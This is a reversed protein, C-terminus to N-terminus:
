GSADKTEAVWADVKQSLVDLPLAGNALVTDHFARIDFDDGLAMQARERMDLIARQGVYYTMIQGPWILLRDIARNIREPDDGIMTELYAYAQERDWRESHIGTEVVQVAALTLLSHLYGVEALGDGGYLGMEHALTEAYTAWGETYGPFPLYQRLLPLGMEMQLALQYHHGPITEHFVLRALGGPSVDAPNGISMNFVGPRAGDASPPSYTSPASVAAFGPLPRIVVDAKPFRTFYDASVATAEAVYAEAKKVLADRSADSDDLDFRNNKILATAREGVTGEITDFGALVEDLQATIAAVEELGETFLTSPDIDLSTNVRILARYAADGNPLAHMGIENGVRANPIRQAVAEALRELAPRMTQEIAVTAAAVQAQIFDEDYGEVAELRARFTVVLEDEDIPRSLQARIDTVTRELVSRPALIGADAHANFTEILEDVSPGFAEIRKTYRRVLKKNSLQHADVMLRPFSAHIGAQDVVFPTGMPAIYFSDSLADQAGLWWAWVDLTLQQDPSLDRGDYRAIEKRYQDILASQRDLEAQTNPTLRGSHRDLVTGDIFGIFSLAEPDSALYQIFQRAAMTDVKSPTGNFIVHATWSAFFVAGLLVLGITRLIWKVM